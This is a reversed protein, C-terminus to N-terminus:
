RVLIVKSGFLININWCLKGDFFYNEVVIFWIINKVDTERRVIFWKWKRGRLIARLPWFQWKVFNPGVRLVIVDTNRDQCCCRACQRRGFLLFSVAELVSPRVWVYIWVLGCFVPPHLCLVPQEWRSSVYKYASYYFTVFIFLIFWTSWNEARDASRSSQM